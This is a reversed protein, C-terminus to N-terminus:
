IRLFKPKRPLLILQFVRILKCRELWRSVRPSVNITAGSVIELGVPWVSKSHMFPLLFTLQWGNQEERRMGIWMNVNVHHLDFHTLVDVDARPSTPHFLLPAADEEKSRRARPLARRDALAGALLDGDAVPPM